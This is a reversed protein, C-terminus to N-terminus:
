EWVEEFTKKVRDIEELVPKIEKIGYDGATHVLQPLTPTMRQWQNLKCTSFEAAPSRLAVTPLDRLEPRMAMVLTYPHMYVCNRSNLYEILRAMDPVLQGLAQPSTILADDKYIDLQQVYEGALNTLLNRAVEGSIVESLTYSVENCGNRFQPLGTVGKPGFAALTDIQNRNLTGSNLNGNIRAVLINSYYERYFEALISEADEVIKGTLGQVETATTETPNSPSNEGKPVDVGAEASEGQILKVM